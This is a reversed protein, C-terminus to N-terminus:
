TVTTAYRNAGTQNARWRTWFRDLPHSDSLTDARLQLIGAASDERWFKESGKVRRNIQKIASEVHSSTLPLGQRRYEPYNMRERHNTYYTVAREIPDTEGADASATRDTAVTETTGDGAEPPGLPERHAELEEIVRDVRGQWIWEAYRRYAHPDDLAKAARHAYSLAHMLDLIGTMRSFHKRHITWNTNAGDAIFAKRAAATVGDRWAKWELHWGFEEAPETDAIMERQLLKPAKIWARANHDPGDGEEASSDDEATRASKAPSNEREALRAIESVVKAGALWEPFEPAPDSPSIESSMSLTLGVKNEKWHTRRDKERPEGFHDRRQHRGGDMMVVGVPPVGATTNPRTREALPLNRFTAVDAARERRRDEGIRGTIRRVQKPSLEIEALERLSEASQPYGSEHTGAWVM